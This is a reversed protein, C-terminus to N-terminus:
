NNGSKDDVGRVEKTISELLSLVTRRDKLKGRMSVTEVNVLGTIFGRV